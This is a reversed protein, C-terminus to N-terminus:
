RSEDLIERLRGGWYNFLARLDSEANIRTNQQYESGVDQWGEYIALLESTAGDRLEAQVLLEGFGRVEVNEGKRAYPMLAIIEIDFILVGEGPEEVVTYGDADALRSTIVERYSQRLWRIDKQTLQWKEPARDEAAVWPPPVVRADGVSLTDILIRNYQGLDLGQKEYYPTLDRVSIVEGEGEGDALAASGALLLGLSVV